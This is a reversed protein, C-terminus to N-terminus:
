VPIGKVTVLGKAILRLWTRVLARLAYFNRDSEYTPGLEGATPSDTWRNCESCAYVAQLDLPKLGMGCDGLWRLHALVVTDARGNCVGAVCMTCPEQNASAQIPTLPKRARKRSPARRLAPPSFELVEAPGGVALPVFKAPMFPRMPAKRKLETRKM